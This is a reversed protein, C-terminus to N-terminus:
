LWHSGLPIRSIGVVGTRLASAQLQVAMEPARPHLRGPHERKAGQRQSTFAEAVLSSWPCPWQGVAGAPNGALLLHARDATHAHWGPLCCVSGPSTVDMTQRASLQWTGPHGTLSCCILPVSSPSSSPYVHSKKKQSCGLYSSM